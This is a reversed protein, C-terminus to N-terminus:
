LTKYSTVSIFTKVINVAIRARCKTAHPDLSYKQMLYYQFLHQM